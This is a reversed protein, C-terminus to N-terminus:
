VLSKFELYNKREGVAACKSDLHLQKRRVLIGALPEVVRELLLSGGLKTRLQMFNGEHIHVIVVATGGVVVEAGGAVIVADGAVAAAVVIVIMGRQVVVVGIHYVLVVRGDERRATTTAQVTTTTTTAHADQPAAAGTTGTAQLLQYHRRGALRGLAVAAAAILVGAVLDDPILWVRVIDLHEDPLDGPGHVFLLQLLHELLEAPHM